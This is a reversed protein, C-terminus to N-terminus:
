VIQSDHEWSYRVLRCHDGSDSWMKFGLGWYFFYFYNGPKKRNASKKDVGEGTNLVVFDGPKVLQNQFFYSNKVKGRPHKEDALTFDFLAFNVLNCQKNVKIVIHEPDEDHVRTIELFEKAM